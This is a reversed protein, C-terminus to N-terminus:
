MALSVTKSASPRWGPPSLRTPVGPRSGPGGGGMRRWGDGCGAYGGGVGGKSSSKPVMEEGVMAAGGGGAMAATPAACSRLRAEHATVHSVEQWVVWVEVWVARRWWTGGVGNGGDGGGIRRGWGGGGVM